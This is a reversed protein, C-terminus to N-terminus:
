ANPRSTLIEAGAWSLYTYFEQNLIDPKRAFDEYSVMPRNGLQGLDLGM